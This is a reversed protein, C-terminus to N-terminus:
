VSCGSTTVYCIAVMRAYSSVLSFNSGALASDFSGLASGDSCSTESADDGFHLRYRLLEDDGEDFSPVWCRFFLRGGRDLSVLRAKLEVGGSGM